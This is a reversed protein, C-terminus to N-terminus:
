NLEAVQGGDGLRLKYMATEISAHLRQDWGPRNNLTFEVDSERVVATPEAGVTWSTGVKPKTVHYRLSLEGTANKMAVPSVSLTAMPEAGGSHATSFLAVEYRSVKQVSPHERYTVPRESVLMRNVTAGDRLVHVGRRLPFIAGVPRDAEVHTVEMQFPSTSVFLHEQKVDMNADTPRTILWAPPQAATDAAKAVPSPATTTAKPPRTKQGVPPAALGTEAAPPVRIAPTPTPTPAPSMTGLSPHITRIDQDDDYRAFAVGTSIAEFLPLSFLREDVQDARLDKGHLRTVVAVWALKGLASGQPGGIDTLKCYGTAVPPAMTNTGVMKFQVNGGGVNNWDIKTVFARPEGEATMEVSGMYKGDIRMQTFYIRPQLGNRQFSYLDPRGQNYPDFAYSVVRDTVQAAKERKSFWGKTPATDKTVRDLAAYDVPATHVVRTFPANAGPM